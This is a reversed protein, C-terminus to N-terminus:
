WKGWRGDKEVARIRLQRGGERKNERSMRRVEWRSKVISAMAATRGSLCPMRRLGEGVFEGKCWVMDRGPM